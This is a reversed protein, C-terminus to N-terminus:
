TRWNIRPFCMSSVVSALKSVPWITSETGMLFSGRTPLVRLLLSLVKLNIM